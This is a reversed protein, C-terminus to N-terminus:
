ANHAKMLEIRDILQKKLARFADRIAVHIDTHAQNKQPEHYVVINDGPIELSINIHYIHKRSHKHPARVAVHCSIIRDFLSDIKKLYKEIDTNIAPSPNFDPYTIEYHFNPKENM